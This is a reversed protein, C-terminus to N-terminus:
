VIRKMEYRLKEFYEVIWKAKEVNIVKNEYCYYHTFPLESLAFREKWFPYTEIKVRIAKKIKLQFTEEELWEKAGILRGHKKAEYGCMERLRDDKSSVWYWYGEISCFDGDDVLKIPAYTFNSLWTGLRTKGKSYINIHKIGDESPNIM